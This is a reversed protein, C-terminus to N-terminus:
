ELVEHPMYVTTEKEAWTFTGDTNIKDIYCIRLQFGDKGEAEERAKILDIQRKVDFANAVVANSKPTKGASSISGRVFVTYVRGYEASNSAVVPEQAPDISIEWFNKQETLSEFAQYLIMTGSMYAFMYPYQSNGLLYAGDLLAFENTKLQTTDTREEVYGAFVPAVDAISAVYYGTTAYNKNEALKYDITCTFTVCDGPSYNGIYSDLASSYIYGLPTELMFRSKEYRFIGPVMSDTSTQSGEGLCSTLMTVAAIVTVMWLKCMRM